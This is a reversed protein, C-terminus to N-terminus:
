TAIILWGISFFFVDPIGTEVVLCENSQKGM